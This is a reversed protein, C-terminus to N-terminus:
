DQLEWFKVAHRAQTELLSLGDIYQRCRPPVHKKHFEHAYNFDWFVWTGDLKGTFQFSRGCANIVMKTEDGAHLDTLRIRSIDDGKKRAYNASSFGLDRLIMLAIRAMVGDGLVVWTAPKWEDHVRPVLERLATADTNTAWASSASIKLCNVAGWIKAEPIALDAFHEKWPATINLGQYGASRLQEISPIQQPSAVDLLDYQTASGLYERYLKPSLSHSIGQGLLALKILPSDEAPKSIL